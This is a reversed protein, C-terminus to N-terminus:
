NLKQFKPPNHSETSAQNALTPLTAIQRRTKLRSPEIRRSLHVTIRFLRTKPFLRSEVFNSGYTLFFLCREGRYRHFIEGKRPSIDLGISSHLLCPPSSASPLVIRLRRHVVSLPPWTEFAAEKVRPLTSLPERTREFISLPSGAHEPRRGRQGCGKKEKERNSAPPRSM